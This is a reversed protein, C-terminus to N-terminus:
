AGADYAGFPPRWVFRDEFGIARWGMKAVNGGYSPDAFLGVLTMRRLLLFFPTTEIRTLAQHQQDPSLAAFRGKARTVLSALGDRVLTAFSGDVPDAGIPGDYIVFDKDTFAGDSRTVFLHDIFHAIGAALASGETTDDAPWIQAAIAAIDAGEDPSFFDFPLPEATAAARQAHAVAAPVGPLNTAFWTAVLAASGDSVFRRRSYHNATM